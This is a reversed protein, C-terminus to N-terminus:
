AYGVLETSHPSDLRQVLVLAGPATLLESHVGAPVCAVPRVQAGTARDLLLVRQSQEACRGYELVAITQGLWAIQNDDLIPVLAHSLPWRPAPEPVQFLGASRDIITRSLPDAAPIFFDDAPRGIEQGTGPDLFFKDRGVPYGPEVLIVGAPTASVQPTVVPQNGATAASARQYRWLERGSAADLAVVLGQNPRCNIVALVMDATVATLGATLCDQPIPWQWAIKGTRADVASYRRNESHAPAILMTRTAFRGLDDPLRETERWILEGTVANFAHWRATNAGILLAAVVGGDDLVVPRYSSLIDTDDRRFHWRERGTAGDIATLGSETAIVVGAGAPRVWIPEEDSHWRWKEVTPSGPPPAPSAPAATTSDVHRSDRPLLVAAGAGTATGLVLGAVLAVVAVRSVPASATPKWPTAVSVLVGGVVVIGAAWLLLPVRIGRFPEDALELAAPIVQNGFVILDIGVSVLLAGLAIRAALAKTLYGWLGVTGLCTGAIALFVGEAMTWAAVNVRDYDRYIMTVLGLDTFALAATALVAGSILLGVGTFCLVRWQKIM